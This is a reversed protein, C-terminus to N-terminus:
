VSAQLHQYLTTACLSSACSEKLAEAEYLTDPPDDIPFFCIAQCDNLLALFSVNVLDNCANLITTREENLIEWIVDIGNQIRHHTFLRHLTTLVKDDLNTVILHIIVLVEPQIQLSLQCIRVVLRFNISLHCSHEEILKM